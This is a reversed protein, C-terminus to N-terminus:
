LLQTFLEEREAIHSTLLPQLPHRTLATKLHGFDEIAFFLLNTM